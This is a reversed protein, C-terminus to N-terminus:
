IVSIKTSMSVNKIGEFTTHIAGVLKGSVNFVPSGSSGSGLVYNIAFLKQNSNITNIFDVDEKILFKNSILDKYFVNVKDIDFNQNLNINEYYKLNDNNEIKGVFIDYYKLYYYDNIEIRQNDNTLIRIKTPIKDEQDQWNQIINHATTIFYIKNKFKLLFGNGNKINKELYHSDSYYSNVTCLGEFNNKTELNRNKFFKLLKNMKIIM